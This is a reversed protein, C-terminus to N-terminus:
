SGAMRSPRAADFCRRATGLRYSFGAWASSQASLTLRPAIASIGDIFSTRNLLWPAFFVAPIDLRRGHVARLYRYILLM